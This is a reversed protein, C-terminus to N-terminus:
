NYNTFLNNKYISWPRFFYSNESVLRCMWLFLLSDFGRFFVFVSGFLYIMKIRIAFELFRDRIKHNNSAFWDHFRYTTKLRTQDFLDMFFLPVSDNRNSIRMPQHPARYFIMSRSIVSVFHCVPTVSWGINGGPQPQHLMPQEREASRHLPVYRARPSSSPQQKPYDATLPQM